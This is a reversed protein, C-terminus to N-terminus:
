KLFNEVSEFDRGIIAKEGDIVIPRQMLTPNEAIIKLIEQNNLIKNKFNEIWIKEKTRVLDMPKINLKSVITTLEDISLPNLLYLKIEFEKNSTEIQALCARSKGCRPNHYIQIMKKSKLNHHLM